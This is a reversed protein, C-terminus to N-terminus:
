SLRTPESIHILSLLFLPLCIDIPPQREHVRWQPGLGCGLGQSPILGTVRQNAPQCEVVSGCWGPGLHPKLPGSSFPSVSAAGVGPVQQLTLRIDPLGVLALEMRADGLSTAWSTCSDYGSVTELSCSYLWLPTRTLLVQSSSWAQRKPSTVECM